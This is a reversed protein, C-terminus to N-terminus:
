SNFKIYKILYKPGLNLNLVSIRMAEKLKLDRQSFYKFGLQLKDEALKYKFCLSLNIYVISVIISKIMPRYWRM